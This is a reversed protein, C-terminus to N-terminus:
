KALVDKVLDLIDKMIPVSMSIITCKGLLDIKSSIGNEGFDRCIDSATETILSIGLAKLMVSIYNGGIDREFEKIMSILPEIIGLVCGIMFVSICISIPLAMEGKFSRIVTLFTVLVLTIIIIKVTEM